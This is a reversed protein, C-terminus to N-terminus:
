LKPPDRLLLASFKPTCLGWAGLGKVKVLGSPKNLAESEHTHSHFAPPRRCNFQVEDESVVEQTM